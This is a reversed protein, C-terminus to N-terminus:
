KDNKIKELLNVKNIKIISSFISIFRIISVSVTTIVNFQAPEGGFPSKLVLIKSM